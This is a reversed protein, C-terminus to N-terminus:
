KLKRADKSPFNSSNINDAFMNNNASGFLIINTFLICRRIVRHMHTIILNVERIISPLSVVHAQMHLYM